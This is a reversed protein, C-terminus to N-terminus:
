GLVGVLALRYRYTARVVRGSGAIPALRPANGGISRRLKM